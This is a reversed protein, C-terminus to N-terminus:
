LLSVPKNVKIVYARALFIVAFTLAVIIQGILTDTLLRYWEANLFKMLPINAAVVLTVSIHDKYINYM